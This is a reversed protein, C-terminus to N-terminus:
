PPNQVTTFRSLVTHLLGAVSIHCASVLGLILGGETVLLSMGAILRRAAGHLHRRYMISNM